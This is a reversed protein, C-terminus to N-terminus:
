RSTYAKISTPATGSSQRILAADDPPVSVETEGHAAVTVLDGIPETRVAQQTRGEPPMDWIIYVLRITIPRDNDNNVRVRTFVDNRTVAVGSADLPTVTPDTAIAPYDVYLADIVTARVDAVRDVRDGTFRMIDVISTRAPVVLAARDSGYVTSVTVSPLEEGTEDVAALKLIPAYSLSTLNTIALTQNMRDDGSTPQYLFEFPPSQPGPGSPILGCGGALLGTLAVVTLARLTAFV